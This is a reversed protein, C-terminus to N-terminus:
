GIRKLFDPLPYASVIEGDVEGRLAIVDVDNTTRAVIEAALLASGGSVLLHIPREKELDLLEGLLYLSEDIANQDFGPM